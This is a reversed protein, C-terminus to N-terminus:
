AALRRIDEMCSVATASRSHGQYWTWGASAIADLRHPEASIASPVSLFHAGEALGEAASETEDLLVIGAGHAACAAFIGSKGVFPLPYSVAALRAARLLAAVEDAPLMGPQEVRLSGLWEPLDCHRGIATIRGPRTAEVLSKLGDWYGTRGGAQYPFFVLTNERRSPPLPAPSEGLNSFVPWASIHEHDACRKALWRASAERNTRVIGSHRALTVAIWRQLWSLWFASTTVAGDAYLEHFMTLLGTGRLPGKIARALWIPAGRPAFGYGSYQLVMMVSPHNMRIESIAAGLARTSRSPLALARFGDVHEQREWTPDAVIFVSNTGFRDRWERSLALAYDGVGCVAPPLRPVIHAITLQAADRM